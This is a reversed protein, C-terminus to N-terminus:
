RGIQSRSDGMMRLMWALVVTSLTALVYGPILEFVYGLNSRPTFLARSLCMAWIGGFLSRQALSYIFIKCFYGFALSGIVVAAMGGFLYLELLYNSGTGTGTDTASGVQNVTLIRELTAPVGRLGEYDITCVGFAHYPFSKATFSVLLPSCRGDLNLHANDQFLQLNSGASFFRTLEDQGIFNDGRTFAPVFIIALALLVLTLISRATLTIWGRAVALLVIPVIAQAAFFRGYHLTILVRPAIMLACVAAIRRRSNIGPRVVGLFMLGFFLYPYFVAQAFFPLGITSGYEISALSKAYMAALIIVPFSLVIVIKYALSESSDLLYDSVPCLPLRLPPLLYGAAFMMASAISVSLAWRGVPDSTKLVLRYLISTLWWFLFCSFIFAFLFLRSSASRGDSGEARTKLKGTVLRKKLLWDWLHSLSQGSDRMSHSAVNNVPEQM